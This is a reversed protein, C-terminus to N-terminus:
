RPAILWYGQWLSRDCRSLQSFREYTERTPAHAMFADEGRGWTPLDPYAGIWLHDYEAPVGLYPTYIWASYTRAAESPIAEMVKRWGAILEDLDARSNGDRLSCRFYEVVADPSEIIVGERSKGPNSLAGARLQESILMSSTCTMIERDRLQWAAFAPNEAIQTRLDAYATLSPYNIGWILRPGSGGGIAPAWLFASRGDLPPAIRAFEQVHSLVDEGSKGQNVHCTYLLTVGTALADPEAAPAPSGATAGVALALAALMQVYSM